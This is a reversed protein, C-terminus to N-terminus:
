RKAVFISKQAIGENTKVRLLYNGVPLGKPLSIGIKQMGKQRLGSHFQVFQIGTMDVLNIEVNQTKALDFALTFDRIVPNPFISLPMQNTGLNKTAVLGSKYKAIIGGGEETGSIWLSNDSMAHIRTFEFDDFTTVFSYGNDGFQENLSGDSNLGVLFTSVVDYNADYTNVTVVLKGNPLEAVSIGEMFDADYNDISAIGDQGYNSDFSGDLNFQATVLKYTGIGVTDAATVGSFHIKGNKLIRFADSNESWTYPLHHFVLGDVGFSSDISCDMNLRMIGIGSGLLEGLSDLDMEGCIYIYNDYIQFNPMWVYDMGLEYFDISNFEFSPDLSGNALYQVFAVDTYDNTITLIKGNALVMVDTFSWDRFDSIFTVSGNDGFTLDLTGDINYRLMRSDGTPFGVWNGVAIFKDNGYAAIPAETLHWSEDTLAYGNEGFNDDIQGDANVKTFCLQKLGVEGSIIVSGDALEMFDNAFSMTPFVVAGDTGFTTDLTGSQSWLIQTAVLLALTFSFVKKM